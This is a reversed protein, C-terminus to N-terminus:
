LKNYNGIILSISIIVILNFPVSQERQWQPLRRPRGGTLWPAFTWIILNLPLNSPEYQRSVATGNSAAVM